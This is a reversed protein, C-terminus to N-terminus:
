AAPSAHAANMWAWATGLITDLDSHAPTWGLQARAKAADAVLVPPDGPRRAAEVHAVPRGTVREAAAIIERVSHGTGTGLNYAEFGPEATLAELALLHAAALDTVHLFDRICTGDPTPYDTGMVTVPAGADRVANLVLPILHTEPDHLEGLEGEPDAGSANFYRLAIGCLGQSAVTSRMIKEGILKTEGYPNIPAQPTDEHIPLTAPTGYTACSSSFVLKTCGARAMAELLTVTGGVNNSYYALPDRMSEGVYASAAFHIV